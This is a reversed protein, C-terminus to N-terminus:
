GELAKLLDDDSLAEVPRVVHGRARLFEEEREIERGLQAVWVARLAAEGKTPARRQREREHSQRLRLSDLHSTTM